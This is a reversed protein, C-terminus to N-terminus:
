ASTRAIASAWSSMRAVLTTQSMPAPEPETAISAAWSADGPFPRHRRARATRCRRSGPWRRARRREWRGPRGPGRGSIRALEAPARPWRRPPSRGAPRGPGSARGEGPEALPSAHGDVHGRDLPKRRGVMRELREAPCTRTQFTDIARPISCISRSRNSDIAGVKRSATVFRSQSRIILPDSRLRQASIPLIVQDYCYQPYQNVTMASLSNALYLMRM